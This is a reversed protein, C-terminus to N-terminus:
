RLRRQEHLNCLQGCLLGAHVHCQVCLGSTVHCLACAALPHPGPRPPRVKCKGSGADAWYGSPCSAVCGSSDALLFYGAACASCAFIDACATCKCLTAVSCTAPAM